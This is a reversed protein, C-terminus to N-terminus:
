HADPPPNSRMAASRLEAAWGPQSAQHREILTNLENLAARDARRRRALERRTVVWLWLSSALRALPEAGRPATTSFSPLQVSIRRM